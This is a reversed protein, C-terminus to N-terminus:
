FHFTIIHKYDVYCTCTCKVEVMGIYEERKTDSTDQGIHREKGTKDSSVNFVMRKKMEFTCNM